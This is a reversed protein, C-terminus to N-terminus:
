RKPGSDGSDTLQLPRSCRTLWNEMPEPKGFLYGQHIVTGHKNLFNAQEITEVGEAVVKLRMHQAVSLITEVLAADNPDNTIDQVFSKDIKLEHFPLRKLYSLSSYGTGFDDMSFHIGMRSLETMKAIVDNINDIVMGETVELTLHTPDAGSSILGQKIQEVFDPQRFHRPSINVAIRIISTAMEESALFRCVRNFVWTGLEIILNSEEAIPIFADPPTLGRQPHQWRVLAEAGVIEGTADVQPQLYIRLENDLIAQHLEREIAFRQKAIEDLNGEFFATHGGGRNKAHHLATNARRLIDLPTDDASQPFIAIGHCATLNIREGNLEFSDNLGAHLKQSIQLVLHATSQQLSAIDSLLIAFEDGSIRAIFDGERLIHVLREGVAKLLSDGVAQGEADNINKFRDINFSILASHSGIRRAKILVQAMRELLLVMNPLGTLTDYFALQHIQAEARKKETIDEKIAMYHTISGDPQRIPSIIAHEIYESGDKRKNNFEGQWVKGETLNKWLADYTSKPTNGSHLIRSNHGIVEERSYGTNRLFTENVYEINANLDVIAISEPSQEVVLSLTRIQAEAAKRTTIDSAIGCVAYIKGAADRLPFKISLYYHQGDEQQVTEEITLPRGTRAVTQDDKVFSDAMQPSFIDYDTKGLIIAETLNFLAEYMQNVFLYRGDLDKAFIVTNSNDTIARMLGESKKLAINIEDTRTRAALADEMLSLAALRGRRQDDLAATQSIKLEAEAKQRARREIAENLARRIAEPLRLLHDKLIFDTLGLHLLEVATEEGVSGSVMIVQIESSLSHIRKLTARFDMGPVNYDALVLDWKRQLAEELQANSDIRHCTAALGQQQLARELLMFDAPVDEIVLLKLPHSM